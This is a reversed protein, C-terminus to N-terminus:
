LLLLRLVSPLTRFLILCLTYLLNFIVETVNISRFMNPLNGTAVSCGYLLTVNAVDGYQQFQTNDFTSSKSDDTLACVDGSSYDDRIVSLKQTTDDWNQIRYNVDNITIKLVSGDDCTLKTNPDNVGGCYEERNDGWFPYKLNPINGCSFSSHCNTYHKDDQCLCTPINIIFIM